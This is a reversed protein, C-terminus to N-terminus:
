RSLMIGPTSMVPYSQSAFGSLKKRTAPTMTTQTAHREDGERDVGASVWTESSTSSAAWSSPALPQCRKQPIMTGIIRGTSAITSSSCSIQSRRTNVWILISCSAPEM